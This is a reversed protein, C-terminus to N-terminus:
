RLSWNTHEGHPEELHADLKGTSRSGTALTRRFLGVRDAVGEYVWRRNAYTVDRGFQLHSSASIASM